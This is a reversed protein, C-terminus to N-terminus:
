RLGNILFNCLSIKEQIEKKRRNLKELKKTWGKEEAVKIKKDIENIQLLFLAQAIELENKALKKKKLKLYTQGLYYHADDFDNNYKLAQLFKEKAKNWEEKKFSILGLIHYPLDFSPNIEIAQNSDAEAEELKGLMFKSLASFTYGFIEFGGHLEILSNLTDIAENWRLEEMLILSAQYFSEEMDPKLESSKKYHVLAKEYEGLEQYIFGLNFHTRPLEVELSLAKEFFETGRKFDGKGMYIEGLESLARPHEPNRKLAENLWKEAEEPEGRKKKVIGIEFYPLPCDPNKKWLNKSKRM